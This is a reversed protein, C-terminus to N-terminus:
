IGRSLGSRWISRNAKLTEIYNDVLKRVEAAKEPPLTELLERFNCAYYPAAPDKLAHDPKGEPGTEM